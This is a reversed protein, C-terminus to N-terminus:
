VFGILLMCLRRVVELAWSGNQLNKLVAVCLLSIDCRGSAWRQIEYQPTGDLIRLLKQVLRRLSDDCIFTTVPTPM